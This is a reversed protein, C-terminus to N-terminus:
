ADSITQDMLFKSMGSCIVFSELWCDVGATAPQLGSTQSAPLAIPWPSGSVIVEISTRRFPPPLNM